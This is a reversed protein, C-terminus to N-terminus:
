TPNFIGLFVPLYLFYRSWLSLFFFFAFINQHVLQCYETDCSSTFLWAQLYPHQNAVIIKLQFYMIKKYDLQLLLQNQNSQVTYIQWLSFKDLVLFLTLYLLLEFFDRSTLIYIIKNHAIESLHIKWIIDNLLMWFIDTKPFFDLFIKTHSPLVLTSEM